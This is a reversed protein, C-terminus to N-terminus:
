KAQVVTTQNWIPLTLFSTLRDDAQVQLIGGKWCFIVKKKIKMQKGNRGWAMGTNKQKSFHIEHSLSHLAGSIAGWHFFYEM